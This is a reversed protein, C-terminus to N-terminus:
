PISPQLGCIWEGIDTLSETILDMRQLNENSTKLHTHKKHNTLVLAARCGARWGAQLDSLSDGVMFSKGLDLDLDRAAQLIM